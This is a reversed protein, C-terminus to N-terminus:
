EDHEKGYGKYNIKNQLHGYYWNSDIINEVEYQPEGEAVIPSPETPRRGSIKDIPTKSLLDINFVPHCNMHPPLKLEYASESIKRVIEFPGTRKDSLKRSGEDTVLNETELYVREGIQFQPNMGRRQDFYKKQIRSALHLDGEIEKQVEHIREVRKPVPIDELPARDTLVPHRGYNAYFPTTRISHHYHNNWTFEAMKTFQDVIVYISDYEGSKPLKVIHDSETWLWPGQPVPLPNLTGHRRRNRKKARFCIRCRSVYDRIYQQMGEWYYGKEVLNM